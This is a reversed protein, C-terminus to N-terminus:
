NQKKKFILDGADNPFRSGWNVIRQIDNEKTDGIGTGIYYQTGENSDNVKVIGVVSTGEYWEVAIIEKSM